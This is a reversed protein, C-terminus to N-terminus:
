PIRCYFGISDLVSSSRGLIGRIDCDMLHFGHGTCTGYPGFIRGKSTFFALRYIFRDYKRTVGVIREGGDVDVNFTALNGETGGYFGGICESGNTLQYTMQIAVITSHPMYRIKITKVRANCYNDPKEVFSTGGSGGVIAAQSCYSQQIQSRHM